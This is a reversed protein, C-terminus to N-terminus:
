VQGSVQAGVRVELGKDARIFAAAAGKRACVAQFDMSIRMGTCFGMGAGPPVARFLKRSSTSQVAMQRGMGRVGKEGASVFAAGSLKSSLTM